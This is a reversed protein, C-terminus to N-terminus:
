VDELLVVAVHDDDETVDEVIARAVGYGFADVGFGDDLREVSVCVVDYGYSAVAVGFHILHEEVEGDHLGVCEDYVFSFGDEECVSVDVVGIVHRGAVEVVEEVSVCVDLLEVGCLLSGGDAVGSADGEGFCVIWGCEGYVFVSVYIEDFELPGWLATVPRM